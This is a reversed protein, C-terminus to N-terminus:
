ESGALLAAAAITAADPGKFCVFICLKSFLYRLSLNTLGMQQTIVQAPPPAAAQQWGATGPEEPVGVPGAAACPRTFHLCVISHVSERHFMFHISASIAASRVEPERAATFQQVHLVRPLEM